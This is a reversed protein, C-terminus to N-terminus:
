NGLLGKLLDSAKQVHDDTKQTPKKTTDSPTAPRAAPKPDFVSAPSPSTPTRGHPSAAPSSAGATPASRSGDSLGAIRLPYEPGLTHQGNGVSVLERVTLDLDFTSGYLERGGWQLTFRADGTQGPELVFKDDGNRYAILGIGRVEADNVVYRNGREDTASGSGSLYGLAFTRDSKNRFRLTVTLMKLPQQLSARFEVVTAAFANVETCLSDNECVNPPAQAPAPTKAGPAPRSPSPAQARSPTATWALCLLASLVGMPVTPRPTRRAVGTKGIDPTVENVEGFTRPM